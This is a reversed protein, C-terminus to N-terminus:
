GEWWTGVPLPVKLVVRFVTYIFGVVLISAVLGSVPKTKLMFMSALLFGLSSAIFGVYQFGLAFLGVLGMMIAPMKSDSFDIRIAPDTKRNELFLLFLLFVIIGVLVIPFFAPGYAARMVRRPFQMVLYLIFACLLSVCAMFVYNYKKM